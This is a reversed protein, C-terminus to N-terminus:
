WPNKLDEGEYLHNRDKFNTKGGAKLRISLKGSRRAILSIPIVLLVFVLTLLIKGSVFGLAKGLGMWYHRLKEAFERWLIGTVLIAIAAYVIYWSRQWRALLLFLLVVAGLAELQRRRGTMIMKYKMLVKQKMLVRQKMLVLYLHVPGVRFEGGFRDASGVAAARHDAAGAVMEKQSEFFEV